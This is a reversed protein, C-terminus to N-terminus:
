QGKNVHLSLNSHHVIKVAHRLTGNSHKMGRPIKFSFYLQFRSVFLFFVRRSVCILGFPWHPCWVNNARRHLLECAFVGLHNLHNLIGIFCWLLSNEETGAKRCHCIKGFFVGLIISLMQKLLHATIELTKWSILVAVDSLCLNTIFPWCAHIYM